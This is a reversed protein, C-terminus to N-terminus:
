GLFQFSSDSLTNLHHNLIVEEVKGTMESNFVLIGNGNLLFSYLYNLGIGAEAFLAITDAACGPRDELRIAFVNSIVAPINAQRLAEMAKEPRDCIIRFLGYDETDAITTTILQIQEKKFINLIRLLTGKKNEIFITIQTITM